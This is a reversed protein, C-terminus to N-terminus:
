DIKLKQMTFDSFEVICFRNLLQPQGWINYLIEQAMISALCFVIPPTVAYPEAPNRLESYIDSLGPSKGKILTIVQGFDEEVGGHVLFQKQQREELSFRAAFNDLCDAIGTVDEPLQWDSELDIKLGMLDSQGNIADLRERAVEIKTKGLDALVYLSQRNLDTLDLRGRDALYLKGVGARVLLQAVSAGLGGLGAVFIVAQQLQEQKEEGWSRIHREFPSNM